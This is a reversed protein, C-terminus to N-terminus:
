CGASCRPILAGPNIAVHCGLMLSIATTKGAGNPGLVALTEGREVGLSIGDVARVDGFVKTVDRLEAM